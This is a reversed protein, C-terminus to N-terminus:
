TGIQVREWAKPNKQNSIPKLSKSPRQARTRGEHVGERRRRKRDGLAKEGSVGAGTSRRTFAYSHSALASFIDNAAPIRPIKKATEEKEPLRFEKKTSSTRRSTKM